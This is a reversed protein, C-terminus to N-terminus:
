GGSRDRHIRLAAEVLHFGAMAPYLARDNSNTLRIETLGIEAM